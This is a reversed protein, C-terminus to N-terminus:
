RREAVMNCHISSSDMRSEDHFPQACSIDCPTVIVVCLLSQDPSSVCVFIDVLTQFYDVSLGCPTQAHVVDFSHIIRFLLETNSSDGNFQITEKGNKRKQIGRSLASISKFVPHGTERFRQFMKNATSDWDENLPYSSEGYWKKESGPGLFTWHGQLFRMAYDKVQEANSIYIEDNGRQTWDIDYFMSM